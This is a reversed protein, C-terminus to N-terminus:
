SSEMKKAERAAVMARAQEATLARKSKRGGKAALYRALEEDPLEAACHPCIM